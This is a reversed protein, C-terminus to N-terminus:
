IATGSLEDSPGANGLTKHSSGGPAVKHNV